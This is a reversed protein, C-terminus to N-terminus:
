FPARIPTVNDGSTAPRSSWRKNALASAAASSAARGDLGLARLSDMAAKRYQRVESILPHAVRQGMSGAVMLGDDDIQAQMTDAQALLDCTAYLGSLKAKDITPHAAIVDRFARKTAASWSTRARPTADSTM